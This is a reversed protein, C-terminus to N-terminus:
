RNFDGTTSRRLKLNQEICSIVEDASAPKPLTPYRSLFGSTTNPVDKWATGSLVVIPINKTDPDGMLQRAVQEGAMDPMVIDLFILDPKFEKAAVYGVAGKTEARVEYEHTAELNLKMVRGFAEDDDVVLVRAKRGRANQM